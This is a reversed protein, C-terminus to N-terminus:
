FYLQSYTNYLSSYKVNFPKSLYYHVASLLRLGFAATLRWSFFHKWNNKNRMLDPFCIWFPLLLLWRNTFIKTARWWKYSRSRQSLGLVEVCRLNTNQANRWVTFLVFHRTMFLILWQAFREFRVLMCNLRNWILNHCYLTYILTLCNM